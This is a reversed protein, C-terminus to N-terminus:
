LVNLEEITTANTVQNRRSAATAQIAACGQGYSLLTLFCSALPMTWATGSKDYITATSNMTQAGVQIARDHLSSFATFRAQSHESGDLVINGVTIGNALTASYWADIEDLKAAKAKVLHFSDAASQCAANQEETPPENFHVQLFESGYTVFTSNPYVEHDVVSTFAFDTPLSLGELHDRMLANRQAEKELDM